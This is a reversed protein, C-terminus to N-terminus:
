EQELYLNDVFNLTCGKSSFNGPFYNSCSRHDNQIIGLVKYAKAILESCFFTRNEEIFVKNEEEKATMPQQSNQKKITKRQLLKSTSIGYQRGVAEKLFIELNDIMEDTRKGVLHRHVIQDYFMPRETNRGHLYDRLTSWRQIAVGQGSTSDLVFVEKGEQEFKLIMAVHDFNSNTITRTIRPGLLQKSRFLLIDGTDAKKM